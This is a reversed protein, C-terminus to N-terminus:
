PIIHKRKVRGTGGEIAPSLVSRFWTWSLFSGRYSIRRCGIDIQRRAREFKADAYSAGDAAVTCSRALRHCGLLHQLRIALAADFGLRKCCGSWWPKHSLSLFSMLSFKTECSLNFSRTQTTNIPPVSEVVRAITKRSSPACFM